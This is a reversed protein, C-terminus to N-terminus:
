ASTATRIVVESFQKRVTLLMRFLHRILQKLFLISIHYTCAAVMRSGNLIRSHQLFQGRSNDQGLEDMIGKCSDGGQSLGPGRELPPVELRGKNKQTDTNCTDVSSGRDPLSSSPALTREATHFSRFCQM